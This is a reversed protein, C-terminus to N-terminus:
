PSFRLALWEYSVAHTMVFPVVMSTPTKFPGTDFCCIIVPAMPIQGFISKFLLRTQKDLNANQNGPPILLAPIRLVYSTKYKM